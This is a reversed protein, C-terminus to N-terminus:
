LEYESCIIEGEGKLPSPPTLTFYPNSEDLGTKRIDNGHFYSDM